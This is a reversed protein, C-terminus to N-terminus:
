AALPVGTDETEESKLGRKKGPVKRYIIIAIAAVSIIVALLLGIALGVSPGSASLLREHKESFAQTAEVRLVSNTLYSPVNNSTTWHPKGRIDFRTTCTYNRDNMSLPVTLTSSVSKNSVISVNVGETILTGNYSWELEPVWIGRFELKCKMIVHNSNTITECQAERDIIILDASSESETGPEQCIYTQAAEHIAALTLFFEGPEENEVSCFSEAEKCVSYGDFLILQSENKQTLWNLRKGRNSKCKFKVPGHGVLVADNLPTEVLVCSAVTFNLVFASIAINKFLRYPKSNVALRQNLIEAVHFQLRFAIRGVVNDWNVKPQSNSSVCAEYIYDAIAM